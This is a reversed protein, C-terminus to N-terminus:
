VEKDKDFLDKLSSFANGVNGDAACRCPNTNLDAGCVPCLGRCDERCLFKGPLNLIILDKVMRDLSVDEGALEYCEPDTKSYIEEFPLKICYRIDKLCRACQAKISTDFAGKVLLSGKTYVYDTDLVVPSCFCYASGLYDIDDFDEKFSSSFVVGPSNVADSIELTM